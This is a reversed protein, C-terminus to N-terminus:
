GPVHPVEIKLDGTSKIFTINLFIIIENNYFIGDKNFSPIRINKNLEKYLIDLKNTEVEVIINISIDSFLKFDSIFAYKSIIAQIKELAINREIDCYATWYLKKM